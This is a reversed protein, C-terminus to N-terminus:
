GLLDNLYDQAIPNIEEYTPHNYPSNLMNTIDYNINIDDLGDLRITKQTGNIKYTVKLQTPTYDRIGIINSISDLNANGRFINNIRSKLFDLQKNRHAKITFEYSALNEINQGNRTYYNEIHSGPSTQSSITLQRIIGEEMFLQMLRNQALLEVVLNHNPFDEAFKNRILKYLITKSSKTGYKELILIGRSSAPVYFLFYLPICETDDEVKTYAVNNPNNINRIQAPVGGDGYTLFGSMKRNESDIRFNEIKFAKKLDEDVYFDESYENLFNEMFNFLDENNIDDLNEHISDASCNRQKVKFSYAVLGIGM